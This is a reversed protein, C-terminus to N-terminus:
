CRAKPGLRKDLKINSFNPMFILLKASNSRVDSYKNLGVFNKMREEIRQDVAISIFKIHFCNLAKKKLEYKNLPDGLHFIRNSFTYIIM